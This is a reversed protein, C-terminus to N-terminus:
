YKEAASKLEGAVETRLLEPAIVEAHQGFSLVWSKVEPLGEVQMTLVVSGDKEESLQQTPHWEREKLYQALNKTFRIKVEVPDGDMVRFRDKTFEEMNFDSPVEFRDDTLKASAIRDLVFTRLEKRKHCHAVVYITGGMFWVHLPDIKRELEEGKSSRYTIVVTHHELVAKNIIDITERHKKYDKKGALGVCFSKALDHLFAHAEPKLMSRIKDFSAKLAESFVTGEFAKLHDSAITLAMLETLTFPVPIKPRFGDVFLWKDVGEEKESYLPFGAQELAEVDRYITRVNSELEKALDPVTVGKRRAELIQLIQWQRSIQDGRPM